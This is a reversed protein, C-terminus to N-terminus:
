YLGAKIGLSEVWHREYPLRPSFSYFYSEEWLTASHYFADAIILAKKGVADTNIAKPKDQPLLM